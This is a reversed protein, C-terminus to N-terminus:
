RKNRNQFLEGSLTFRRSGVTPTTHKAIIGAVIEPALPLEGALTAFAAKWDTKESDKAKKWSIKYDPGVLVSAEGMEKKIFNSHLEEDEELSMRQLRAQSLAHVHEDIEPTPQKESGDDVPYLRKLHETAAKSGDIEPENGSQVRDWFALEITILNGILEDDRNIRYMRDDNGGLLVIVDVWPLGSVYLNHQVQLYYARPIENSGDPGWESAKWQSSSKCELGGVINNDDDLVFGDLHAGLFPYEPHTLMPMRNIGDIDPEGTYVRRGTRTTYTQQLAPEHQNGWYMPRYGFPPEEIISDVLGRKEMYLELETKWQSMGCVVAADSGGLVHKREELFEQYSAAPKPLKDLSIATNM